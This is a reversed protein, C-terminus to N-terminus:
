EIPTTAGVQYFHELESPLLELQRDPSARVAAARQKLEGYGPLADLASPIAQLRYHLAAQIQLQVQLLRAASTGRGGLIRRRGATRPCCLTGQPGRAQGRLARVQEGAGQPSAEAAAAAASSSLHRLLPSDYRYLAGPQAPPAPRSAVWSGAAEAADQLAALAGLRGLQPLRGVCRRVAVGSM